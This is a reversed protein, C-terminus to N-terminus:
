AANDVGDEEGEHHEADEHDEAIRNGRGNSRQVTAVGGFTGITLLIRACILRSSRGM